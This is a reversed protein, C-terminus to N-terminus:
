FMGDDGDLDYPCGNHNCKIKEAVERDTCNFMVAPCKVGEVPVLAWPFRPHTQEQDAM